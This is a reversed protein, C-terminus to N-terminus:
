SIFLILLSLVTVHLVVSFRPSVHLFHGLLVEITDLCLDMLCMSIRLSGRTVDMCCLGAVVLLAMIIRILRSFISVVGTILLRITDLVNDSIFNLPDSAVFEFANLVLTRLAEM